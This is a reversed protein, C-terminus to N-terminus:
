RAVYTEGAWELQQSVPDFGVPIVQSATTATIVNDVCTLMGSEGVDSYYWTFESSGTDGIDITVQWHCTAPGSPTLGCELENMSSFTRGELMVCAGQEVTSEDLGTTCGSVLLVLLTARRM